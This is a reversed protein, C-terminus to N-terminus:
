RPAPGNAATAPPTAPEKPRALLAAASVGVDAISRDGNGLPAVQQGDITVTLVQPRGTVIMPNNAGNPVTFSDGAKMENEYLRKNEADYIKVWVSDTATIVVTGSTQQAVETPAADTKATIPAEAVPKVAQPVADTSLAFSRWVFYGALLLVVLGAASWALWRPPVRAPDTPEYAPMRATSAHFGGTALESRLSDAIEVPDLDVAKAYSRAFGLSYTTGPLSGFDSTEIAQLHRIPVRTKGAIENLSFGAAERAAQLRQGVSQLVPDATGDQPMEASDNVRNDM